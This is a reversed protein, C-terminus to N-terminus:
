HSPPSSSSPPQPHSADADSLEHVYMLAGDGLSSVRVDASEPFTYVMRPFNTCLTYTQDTDAGGPMSQDIFAFVAQLSDDASFRRQIRQGSPIRVAVNLGEAPEATLLSRRHARAREAAEQEERRRREEEQRRRDKEQDAVLSMRFAEEQQERLSRTATAHQEQLRAREVLEMGRGEVVGVLAAVFESSDRLGPLAALLAGGSRGANAFVVAVFPFESARIANSLAFGEPERVDGGWVVFREAVFSVVPPACLTQSCFQATDGHLESHLYVLLLRFSARAAAVAEAYSGAFFPPHIPGYRTEFAALFREHETSPRV